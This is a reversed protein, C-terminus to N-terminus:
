GQPPEQPTVDIVKCTPCEAEDLPRETGCKVCKKYERYSSAM